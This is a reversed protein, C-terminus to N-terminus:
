NFENNLIYNITETEEPFLTNFFIQFFRKPSADYAVKANCIGNNYKGNPDVVSQGESIGDTVIDVYCDKLKIVDNDIIYATVLADFIISGLIKDEFWHAKAYYDTIDYIYKSIPSDIYKLIERLNPTFIVKNTADLGIMVIEKFGANFVIKAAHPDEWFNFEAVPSCNGGYEAGGMIVLRKTNKVFSADKKVALAINTLPGIPAITIENPNKNITDILFDPAYKSEATKKISSYNINGLGNEGHVNATILSKKLPKDAGQYVPIDNRSAVSLTILANKTAKELSCNGCVTTLAELKISNSHLALLIAISDDVGPDTDIIINEM